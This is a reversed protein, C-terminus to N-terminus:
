PFHAHVANTDEGTVLDLHLNRGVVHGAATDGVAVFLELEVSISFYFVHLNAGANLCHTLLALDNTSLTVDAHDALIRTM